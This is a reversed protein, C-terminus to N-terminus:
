FQTSDAQKVIGGGAKAAINNDPSGTADTPEAIQRALSKHSDLSAVDVQQAIFVTNLRLLCAGEALDDQRGQQQDASSAPSM